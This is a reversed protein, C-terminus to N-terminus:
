VFGHMLYHLLPYIHVNEFNFRLYAVLNNLASIRYKSANIYRKPDETYYCPFVVMVFDHCFVQLHKSLSLIEATRIDDQLM